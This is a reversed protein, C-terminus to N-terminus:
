QEKQLHKIFQRESFLDIKEVIGTAIRIKIKVLAKTPGDYEGSEQVTDQRVLEKVQESFENDIVQYKEQEHIDDFTYYYYVYEKDNKASKQINKGIFELFIRNDHHNKYSLVPEPSTYVNNQNIDFRSGIELFDRGDMLYGGMSTPLINRRMNRMFSSIVSARYIGPSVIIQAMQESRWM